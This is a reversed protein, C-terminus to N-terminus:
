INKKIKNIEYWLNEVKITESSEILYDRTENNVKLDRKIFIAVGGIYTGKPPEFCSVYNQFNNRYFELNCNWVESSWICDFKMNLLSLYTVLEKLHKNLSRINVHFISFKSDNYKKLTAKFENEVYYECEMGVQNYMDKYPKLFKELNSKKIAKKLRQKSTLFEKLIQESTLFEKLIQESTLNPFPGM